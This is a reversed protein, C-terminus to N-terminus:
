FSINSRILFNFYVLFSGVIEASLERKFIQKDRNSFQYKRECLIIQTLLFNLSKELVTLTLPKQPLKADLNLDDGYLLSTNGATNGGTGGSISISTNITVTKKPSLVNETNTKNLIHSGASAVIDHKHLVKFCYDILFTLSGFSLNLQQMNNLDFSSPPNLNVALLFNYEDLNILHSAQAFNPIYNLLSDLCCSIISFLQNQCSILEDTNVKQAQKQQQQQQQQHNHHSKTILIKIHSIKTICM